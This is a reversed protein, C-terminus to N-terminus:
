TNLKWLLLNMIFKKSSAFYDQCGASSVPTLLLLCIYCIPLCRLQIRATFHSPGLSPVVNGAISSKLMCAVSFMFATNDMDLVYITYFSYPTKLGKCVVVSVAIIKWIFTFSMTFFKTWIFSQWFFQQLQSFFHETTHIPYWQVNQLKQQPTRPGKSVRDAPPCISIM